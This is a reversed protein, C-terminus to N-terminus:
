GNVSWSQIWTRQVQLTSGAGVTQFNVQARIVIPPGGSTGCAVDPTGKVCASFLVNQQVFSGLTLTPQGVCDVRINIAVNEETLPHYFPAAAPPPVNPNAINPGCPALAPGGYTSSASRLRLQGIAFEVAGDAAYERDRASDLATRVHLGSSISSLIASSIMGIVVMFAIALLLSAGREDRVARTM